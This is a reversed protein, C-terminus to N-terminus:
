ISDVGILTDGVYFSNKIFKAILPYQLTFDIANQKVAVNATSMSASLGFTVRMM